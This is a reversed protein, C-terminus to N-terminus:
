AEIEFRSCKISGMAIDIEILNDEENMENFEALFEMLSHQNFLAEHASSLERKKQQLTCCNNYKSNSDEKNQNHGVFHGSPLAIEILSDEDSITGDSCEDSLTHDVEESTSLFLGEEQCKDDSVEESEKAQTVVTEANKHMPTPAIAVASERGHSIKEESTTTSLIFGNGEALEDNPVAKHKWFILLFTSLLLALSTFLLSSFFMFGVLKYSSFLLLLALPVTIWSPTFITINRFICFCSLLMQHAVKSKWWGM